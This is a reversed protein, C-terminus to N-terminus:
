ADQAPARPGAVLPRAPMVRLRRDAWVRRRLHSSTGFLLMTSAMLFWLGKSQFETALFSTSVILATLVGLARLQNNPQRLGVVIFSSIFAVLLAFGPVGNEALTKIWGAHASFEEGKQFGTMGERDGLTAWAHAFGGTGVGLPHDEFIYWGGLVLESRGSTKARLSIDSETLKDLRAFAEDTLPLFRDALLIVLGVGVAVYMLRQVVGRGSVFVFATALMGVALDSRSASLFVWVLNIGALPVLMFRVRGTTQTAAALATSVIATLPFWGWANRNGLEAHTLFFVLGGLAGLTGNVLAMSEWLEPEKHARALAVVVGFVALLGLLHQVGLEPEASFGIEFALLTTFTVLLALQGRPIIKLQRHFAVAVLLLLYNITNWRFLGGTLLVMRFVADLTCLMGIGLAGVAPLRLGIVVAALAVIMLVSLAPALGIVFASAWAIAIIILLGRTWLRLSSRDNPQASRRARARERLRRPWVRGSNRTSSTHSSSAEPEVLPRPHGRWPRAPTRM